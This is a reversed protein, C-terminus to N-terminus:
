NLSWTKTKSFDNLFFQNSAQDSYLVLGVRSDRMNIGMVLDRAFDMEARFNREGISGSGDLAFVIDGGQRCATSFFSLNNLTICHVAHKKRVM